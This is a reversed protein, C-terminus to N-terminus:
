FAEISICLGNESRKESRKNEKQRGLVCSFFFFQGRERVIYVVSIGQM